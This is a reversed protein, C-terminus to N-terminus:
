QVKSAHSGASFKRLETTLDSLQQMMMRHREGIVKEAESTEIDEIFQLTEELRQLEREDKRSLTGALHGDILEHYRQLVADHHASRVVPGNLLALKLPVKSFEEMSDLNAKLSKRERELKIVEKKPLLAYRGDTAMADLERLRKVSKQVTVWRSQLLLVEEEKSRLLELANLAAPNGEQAQRILLDERTTESDRKTQRRM